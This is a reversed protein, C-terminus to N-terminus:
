FPLDGNVPDVEFVTEVKSKEKSLERNFGEDDKGNEQNFSRVDNITTEKHEIEKHEIQKSKYQKLYEQLEQDAKIAQERFTESIEFSGFVPIKFKTAGKEGDALGTVKVGRENVNIKKDIWGNFGSGSIQFNVLESTDKGTILLAYVSKTFKGGIAKANDKIHEYLGTILVDTKFVRVNLTENRLDSVENSYIGAKYKESYGSITNLEDLVIFGINSIPIEVNKETTKNWYEFIGTSGKFRIFKTVPNEQKPNSFSM